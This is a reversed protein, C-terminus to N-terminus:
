VLTVLTQVMSEIVQSQRLKPSSRASNAEDIFTSNPGWNALTQRSYIMSWQLHDLLHRVYRQIDGYALLYAFKSLSNKFSTPFCFNSVKQMQM